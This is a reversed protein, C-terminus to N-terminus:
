SRRHFGNFLVTLATRLDQHGPVGAIMAKAFTLVNVGDAPHSLGLRQEILSGISFFRKLQSRRFEAIRSESVGKELVGAQLPLLRLLSPREFLSDTMVRSLRASPWPKEDSAVAEHLVTLWDWLLEELLSLFLAEKTPFYLFMTGKALRSKRAIEAMTIDEYSHSDFLEHAAALIAARRGEKAEPSRARKLQSVTV